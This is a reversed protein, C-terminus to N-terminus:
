DRNPNRRHRFLLDRLDKRFKFEFVVLKGIQKETLIDELSSIFEIRKNIISKEIELIKNVHDSYVSKDEIEDELLIDHFDNLLNDRNEMLSETVNRFENRRSFFKLTTEEDMDLIEILKVKELEDIKSRNKKKMGFGEHRQGFATIAFVLMLLITIQTKM